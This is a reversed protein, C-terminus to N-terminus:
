RISIMDQYIKILKLAEVDLTFSKEMHTRASHSAQERKTDNLMYELASNAMIHADIKIIKGTAETVLESFAGVNTAVVPSGCAMAELPTLGFGEWRQPAVYLDLIQYWDNIQTREGMFLIHEELGKDKIHKKLRQEYLIHPFTSRGLILARWGPAKPLAEIMADVFLDTGKQHRVRGFCGVYRIEPNLGCHQKAINKDVAPTFKEVNIGHMVVTSPTEVYKVGKKSTVVIHDMHRMLWRTYCTYYRQSASTFLLKLPMKFVHKLFLGFLMETNRRAHWLRYEATKPKHRLSFLDRWSLCPVKKPLGAGFGLIPFGLARQHPVLRIITSTVGSLHRKLNPAIALLDEHKM